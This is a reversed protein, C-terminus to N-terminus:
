LLMKIGVQYNLQSFPNGDKERVLSYDTSFIFGQQKEKFIPVRYETQFKIYFVNTVTAPALNSNLNHAIGSFDTDDIKYLRYLDPRSFVSFVPMSLSNIWQKENNLQIFLINSVGLAYYNAWYLHSDDWNPYFSVNYAIRAEPGVYYKFNSKGSAFFNLSYDFDLQLNITKSLDELGTKLRSYGLTFQFRSWTKGKKEFAYFLETSTGTSVKPHLNEDKIQNVGFQFGIVNAIPNSDGPQANATIALCLLVMAYWSTFGNAYPKLLLLKIM